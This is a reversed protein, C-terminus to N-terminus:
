RTALVAGVAIPQGLHRSVRAGPGVQDVVDRLDVRGPELPDLTQADRRAGRRGLVQHVLHHLVEPRPAHGLDFLDLRDGLLDAEGERRFQDAVASRPLRAGRM